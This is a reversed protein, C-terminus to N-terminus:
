SVVPLTLALEELLMKKSAGRNPMLTVCLLIETALKPTPKQELFWLVGDRLLEIEKTNKEKTIKAIHELRVAYSSTQFTTFVSNTSRSSANPMDLIALRSLLTPLLGNKSETVLVFKTTSPPEEFLKLLAQQAEPAILQAEIVMTKASAAFPKGFAGQIIKRVDSIALTEFTYLEVETDQKVILEKFGSLAFTKAMLLIAHHELM